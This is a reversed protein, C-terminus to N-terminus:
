EKKGSNAIQKMVQKVSAWEEDSDINAFSYSEGNDILRSAYIKIMNNEDIENLTYLIYDIGSEKIKFTSLIEAEKEAGNEDIVILKKKNEEM